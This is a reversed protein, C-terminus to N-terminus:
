LLCGVLFAGAFALFLFAYFNREVQVEFEKQETM